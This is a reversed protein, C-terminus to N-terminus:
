RSRKGAVMMATHWNLRSCKSVVLAASEVLGQMEKKSYFRVTGDKRLPATLNAIQLLPSFGSADVIIIRGNPSLIRHMESLTASPKPYHHFSYTCTVLDFQENDFPLKESDCVRLDVKEGLKMGAIRIMQDSLDIGFRKADEKQQGLLLLLSGTGCGVDLCTRFQQRLAEEAIRGYSSRLPAYKSSRDYGSADRDFEAKSLEMSDNKVTM